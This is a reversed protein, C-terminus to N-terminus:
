IESFLGKDNQLNNVIDTIRKYRVIQIHKQKDGNHLEILSLEVSTQNWTLEPLNFLTFSAPFM